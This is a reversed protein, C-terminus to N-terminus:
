SEQIDIGVIADGVAICDVVEMGQTVQGFVTYAGNLHSAQGLTVFWQSGGSNPDQSRAMGVVGRVFPEASPELPISYGPGGRGTGTPDGGQVVFGPEVRHFVTGDFYHDRALFVFSNVTELAIDPRLEITFDGRVTKVVASYKKATDITRDPRAPYSKVTPKPATVSPSPCARAPTATASVTRTAGPSAPSPSATGPSATRSVPAETESSCAIAIAVIVSLALPLLVRYPM